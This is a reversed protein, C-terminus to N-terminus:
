ARPRVALPRAHGKIRYRLGLIWVRLHVAHLYSDFGIVAGGWERANADMRPEGL